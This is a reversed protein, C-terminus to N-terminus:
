GAIDEYRQVSSNTPSNARSTSATNPPLLNSDLKTGTFKNILSNWHGRHTKWNNIIPIDHLGVAKMEWVHKRANLKSALDVQSGVGITWNWRLEWHLIACVVVPDANTSAVASGRSVRSFKIRMENGRVWKIRLRGPFWDDTVIIHM